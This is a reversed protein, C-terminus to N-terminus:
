VESPATPESPKAMQAMEEIRMLAPVFFSGVGVVLLSSGALLYWLEVGMTDSLPGAIVLSLPTMITVGSIIISFIRGQMEPPVGTQMIALVSANIIPFMMGVVLLLGLAMMLGSAPTLGVLLIGAGVVSIGVLVTVIRKKFGGWVGMLVGGIIMGIGAMSEMSAYEMAGGGFHNVAMIPLLSFTPSILFNVVMFVALLSIVGPWSRLFGAAEKLDEKMSTKPGPRREPQPISVVMLTGIALVTTAIDAILVDGVPLMAILVAGLPPAFITAVGRVSENLGNVKTLFKEPVMMTTSAQFAPWLFGAFSSRIFIMVYIVWVEALDLTFIIVLMTTLAAIGINAFIMVRRRNWRDLKTGALPTIIIQPLLAMIMGFALVTASHTQMTLWWVLTFQVLEAGFFSCAQGTWMTVFRRVWKSNEDVAM